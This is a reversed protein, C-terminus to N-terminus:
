VMPILWEDGIKLKSELSIPVGAATVMVQMAMMRMGWDEEKAWVREVLVCICIYMYLVYACMRLVVVQWFVWQMRDFVMGDGSGLEIWDRGACFVYVWNSIHVYVVVFAYWVCAMLTAPNWWRRSFKEEEARWFGNKLIVFLFGLRIWDFVCM